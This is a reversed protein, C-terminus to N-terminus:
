PERVGRKRPWPQHQPGEPGLPNPLWRSPSLRPHDSLDTKKGWISSTCFYNEEFFYIDIYIYIYVRHLASTHIYICLFTYIWGTAFQFVESGLAGSLISVFLPHNALTVAMSTGGKRKTNQLMKKWVNKNEGQPFSEIQSTCIKWIPTKFVM